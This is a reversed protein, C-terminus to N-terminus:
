PLLACACLKKKEWLGKTEDVFPFFIYVRACLLNNDEIEGKKEGGELLWKSDVLHALQTLAGSPSEDTSVCVFFINLTLFSFVAFVKAM